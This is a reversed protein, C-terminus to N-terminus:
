RRFLRLLEQFEFSELLTSNKTSLDDRGFSELSNLWRDIEVEIEEKRNRNNTNLWNSIDEVKKVRNYEELFQFIDRSLLRTLSTWLKNCTAIDDNYRDSKGNKGISSLIDHIGCRLKQYEKILQTVDNLSQMIEAPQSTFRCEMIPHRDIDRYLEDLHERLYKSIENRKRAISNKAWNDVYDSNKNANTKRKPKENLM